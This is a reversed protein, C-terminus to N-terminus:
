VDYEDRASHDPEPEGGYVIRDALAESIRHWRSEPVRPTGYGMKVVEMSARESLRSLLLDRSDYTTIPVYRSTLRM